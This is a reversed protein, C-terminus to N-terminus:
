TTPWIRFEDEKLPSLFGFRMEGVKLFPDSLIKIEGLSTYIIEVHMGQEMFAKARDVVSIMLREQLNIGQEM